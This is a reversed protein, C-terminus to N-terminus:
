VLNTAIMAQKEFIGVNNMAKLRAHLVALQGFIRGNIQGINLDNKHRVMFDHAEKRSEKSIPIENDHKDRVKVKDKITDIKELTQDKTMTLDISACRSDILPQPFDKRELNSIFIVQGKFKIKKPLQEGDSDKGANGYEVSGDGTTDLMGKLINQQDDKGNAWMSDCDDFIIIKDKNKVIQEWMRRMGTAGKIIIADYDQPGMGLEEDYVRLKHQEIAQELTYSKGVGGTGYAILSKPNGTLILNDLHIGYLDWKDHYTIGMAEARKQRQVALIKELKKSSVEDINDPPFGGTDDKLPMDKGTGSEEVAGKGAFEQMNLGAKKMASSVHPYEATPLMNMIQKRDYCGLAVLDYVKQQVSTGLDNIIKEVANVILAGSSEDDKGKTALITKNTEPSTKDHTAPSHGTKPDVWRTTTFVKGTKTKVQIQRKVLKSTDIHSKLIDTASLGPLSDENFIESKKLSEIMQTRTYDSSDEGTKEEFDRAIADDTFHQYDPKQDDKEGELGVEEDSHEKDSLKSAIKKHLNHNGTHKSRFFESEKKHEQKTLFGHSESVELWKGNSQKKYKKGSWERVEGVMAKSHSAKNIDPEFEFFPNSSDSKKLNKEAAKKKYGEQRHHDRTAPDLSTNDAHAFHEDATLEKHEKEIKSNMGSQHLQAMSSHHQSQKQSKEASRGHREYTDEHGRDYANSAKQDYSKAKESHRKAAKMHASMADSHDEATYHQTHQQEHKEYIPKGSKTHGIVKGGRSGEAKEINNDDSKEVDSHEYWTDNSDPDSHVLYHKDKVKLKIVATDEKTGRGLLEQKYYPDEIEPHEKHLAAVEKSSIKKGAYIPKGSKTYGIVKGGRSGVGGKEIMSELQQIAKAHLEKTILGKELNKNLLGKVEDAKSLDTLLSLTDVTGKPIYSQLIRLEKQQRIQDFNITKTM